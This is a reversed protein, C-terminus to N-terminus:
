IYRHFKHNIVLLRLLCLVVHGDSCKSRNLYQHNGTHKLALESYFKMDTIALRIKTHLNDYYKDIVEVSIALFTPDFLSLRSKIGQKKEITNLKNQLAQKERSTTPSFIYNTLLM